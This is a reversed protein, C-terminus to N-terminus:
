MQKNNAIYDSPSMGVIKKFIRNFYSASSFGVSYAVSEINCKGDLLMIKAKECRFANLYAIFSLGTVRLFERTFYYKSIGAVSAIEDLSLHRAYETHIYGLAKKISSLLNSEKGTTASSDIHRTLLLSLVTLIKSRMITARYPISENEYNEAIEEFIANIESDCVHLKFTITSTDFQNSICFSRDVILVVFRLDELAQVFHIYNSNIVAVEGKCIVVKQENSTVQAKGNIVYLLELNEHWNERVDRHGQKRHYDHFIFPLKGDVLRHKEYINM